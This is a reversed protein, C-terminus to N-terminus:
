GRRSGREDNDDADEVSMQRLTGAEGGGGAGRSMRTRRCAAWLAARDVGLEEGDKGTERKGGREDRRRGCALATEGARRGM